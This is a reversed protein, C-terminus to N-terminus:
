YLGGTYELNIVDKEKIRLKTTDTEKEETIVPTKRPRYKRFIINM